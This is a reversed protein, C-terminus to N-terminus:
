KIANASVIECGISKTGKPPKVKIEFPTSTSPKYEGGMIIAETSLETDDKSTYKVDITIYNYSVKQANSTIEGKITVKDSLVKNKIEYDLTLYNTPMEQELDTPDVYDESEIVNKDNSPKDSVSTNDTSQGCSIFLSLIVLSFMTLKMNM